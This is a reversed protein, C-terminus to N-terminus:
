KTIREYTGSSSSYLSGYASANAALNVNDLIISGSVQADRSEGNSRYRTVSYPTQYVSNSRGKFIVDIGTWTLNVEVTKPNSSTYDNVAFTGTLTASSLSNNITFTANPSSGYGSSSTGNCFNYVSYYLDAGMQQTPTGPGDKTRSTFAYVSVSTSTCEDSQYFYASANQGKVQYRTTTAAVVPLSLSLVTLVTGAIATKM